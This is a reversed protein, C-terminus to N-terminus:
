IQNKGSDASHDRGERVRCKGLIAKGMKLDKELSEALKSNSKANSPTYRKTNLFIPTKTEIIEELNRKGIVQM